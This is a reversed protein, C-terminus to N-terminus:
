QELGLLARVAPEGGAGANIELQRTPGDVRLTFTYFACCESELAVLDAVAGIPEDASFSVRAGGTIPEVSTARDRLERWERLRERLQTADLTCAAGILRESVVPLEPASRAMPQLCACDPGCAADGISAGVADLDAALSTLEDMRQRTATRQDHVMARLREQVPACEEGDWLRVLDALDDLEIGVAKARQVFALRAVSADDYLRYGADSRTAAPIVGVKEYYRLTTAPVGSRRALQSITLTTMSFLSVKFSRRLDLTNVYTLSLTYM